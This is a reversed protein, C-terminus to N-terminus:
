ITRGDLQHDILEFDDAEDVVFVMGVLLASGEHTDGTGGDAFDTLAGAM